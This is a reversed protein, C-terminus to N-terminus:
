TRQVPYIRSDDLVAQALLAKALRGDEGEISSAGGM